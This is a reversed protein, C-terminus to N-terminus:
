DESAEGTRFISVPLLFPLTTFVCYAYRFEAFVPTTLWLTFVVALVPVTLLFEKRNHVLNFLCLISLIWVNLGISQIPEFLITERTFAFYAKVLDHILNHQEVMYMGYDNEDVLQAYIYYEYGGNWYGKTEEVWAEVYEWPYRM